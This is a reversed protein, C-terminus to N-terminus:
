SWVDCSNLACLNLRLVKFHTIDIYSLTKNRTHGTSQNQNTIDVIRKHERKEM